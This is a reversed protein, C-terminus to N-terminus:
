LTKLPVRRELYFCFKTFVRFDGNNILYPIYESIDFLTYFYCENYNYGRFILINIHINCFTMDYSKIPDECNDNLRIAKRIHYPILKKYLLEYKGKDENNYEDLLTHYYDGFIDYPKIQM